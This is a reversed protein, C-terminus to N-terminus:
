GVGDIFGFAQADQPTLWLDRRQYLQRFHDEEMGSRECFIRTARDEIIKMSELTDAIDSTRGWTGTSAEHIMLVSSPGMLRVDAAQLLISAMSCAEGRVRITLLHTGGGGVSLLSLNDFLRYGEHCYGGPSCLDIIIPCEPDIRDWYKLRAICASVNEEDVQGNFHYEALEDNTLTVQRYAWSAEIEYLEAEANEKRAQAQKLNIDLIQLAEEVSVEDGNDATVKKKRGIGM